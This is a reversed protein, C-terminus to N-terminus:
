ASTSSLRYYSSLVNNMLSFNFCFQCTSIFHDSAFATFFHNGLDVELIYGQGNDEAISNVELSKIEELTLWKFNSTPLHQSMAWGYLNNADLYILHSNPLNPDYNDVDPHNAKAYRFFSITANIDFRHFILNFNKLFFLLAYNGIPSQLWVGASEM